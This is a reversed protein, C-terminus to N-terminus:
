LEIEKTCSFDDESNNIKNVADKIREEMDIAFAQAKEKNDFWFDRGSIDFLPVMDERSIPRGSNNRKWIFQPAISIIPVGFKKIKEADNNNFDSVTIMISYKGDELKKSVIIKM